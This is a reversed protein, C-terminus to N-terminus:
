RIVPKGHWRAPVDAALGPVVVWARGHEFRHRYRGSAPALAERHPAGARLRRVEAVRQRRDPLFPEFITRQLEEPIGIGDDTVCIEVGARARRASVVVAGHPAFKVANSVLNRVIIKIKGADSSLPLLGPAVDWVLAVGSTLWAEYPDSEVERLLDAVEVRRAEIRLRGVEMASLDLVASVLDFLNRARDDIRKLADAQDDSIAGFAELQLMETYGLIAHIPTRLEHSMTALFESKAQSAVEAEDKARRLDEEARKRETLDRITCMLGAVEPDDLLNCFTVESPRWAGAADRLRCEVSRRARAVSRVAIFAEGLGPADDPHLFDSAFRGVVQDERHGFRGLTSSEGNPRALITGDVDLM